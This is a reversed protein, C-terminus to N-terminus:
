APEKRRLHRLQEVWADDAAPQTDPRVKRFHAALWVKEPPKGAFGLYIRGYLPVILNIRLIQGLVPADKLCAPDGCRCNEFGAICVALDGVKWDEADSM